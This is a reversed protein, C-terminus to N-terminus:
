IERLVFLIKTVWVDLVLKPEQKKKIEDMKQKRSM